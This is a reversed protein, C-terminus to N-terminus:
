AMVLGEDQEAIEEYGRGILFTALVTFSIMLGPVISWWWAEDIVGARFANRIIVGWTPVGPDSVGLFALGAQILIAYGAGIATFLIAMPAVSPFIHKILIRWSSAGTSRAAEVFPQEKIQLTQSRIVRAMGRWLLLGIVTVTILFDGGLLAVLVIAAPLVPVSYVFDTFRMLVEDVVGGLYGATMGISAGIAFIMGGVIVGTMVTPRAGVLMRSLVDQGQANTGLPHQLSPPETRLLEGNAFQTASPDYPALHPGFTGLFLVFGLFFMAMRTIPDRTLVRFDSLLSRVFHNTRLQNHFGFVPKLVISPKLDM